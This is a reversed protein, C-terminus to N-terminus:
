ETIRTSSAKEHSAVMFHLAECHPCKVASDWVDGKPPVPTDILGGCAPCSYKHVLGGNAKHRAIYEDHQQKLNSM